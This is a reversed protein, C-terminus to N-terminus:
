GRKGGRNCGPKPKIMEREQGGDEELRKPNKKEIAYAQKGRKTVHSVGNKEIGKEHGRSM